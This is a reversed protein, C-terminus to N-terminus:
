LVTRNSNLQPQRLQSVERRPVMSLIYNIIVLTLLLAAAVANHAVALAIPLALLVNAIGLSVQTVLLLLLLASLRRLLPNSCKFIMLLALGILVLSTILAGIRHMLHVTVGADLQLTGGAYNVAPDRFFVFAESFNTPPLWVGQCTPFDPCYLAAYNTSTWGGLFIQLALIVLAFRGLPRIIATIELNTLTQTIHQKIHSHKYSLSLYLWLLLSLTLLGTLLHLTVITPRLLQTVTWMGLMGQFIVLGVLIFPLILPQNKDKRNRWALFAMLLIFLGLSSALYRHLMEKWAKEPHVDKDPFEMRARAISHAEDPATIQGFCGPWDPCGLGADSLRVYAGIVIVLFALLCSALSVQKFLM